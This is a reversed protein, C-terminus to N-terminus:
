APPRRCRARNPWRTPSAPSSSSSTTGIRSGTRLPCATKSTSPFTAMSSTRPHTRISGAARTKMSSTRRRPLEGATETMALAADDNRVEPRGYVPEVDIPIQRQLNDPTPLQLRLLQTTSDSGITATIINYTGTKLPLHDITLSWKGGELVSTHLVSTEITVAVDTGAPADATGAITFPVSEAIVPQNDNITVTAAFLPPRPPVAVLAFRDFVVTQSSRTHAMSEWRLAPM